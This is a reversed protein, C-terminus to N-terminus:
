MALDIALVRVNCRDLYPRSFDLQQYKRYIYRWHAEVLGGFFDRDLGGQVFNLGGDLLRHLIRISLCIDNESPIKVAVVWCPALLLDIMHKDAM